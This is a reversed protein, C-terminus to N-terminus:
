RKKKILIALSIFFLLVLLANRTALLSVAMPQLNLIDEWYRFYLWTLSSTFIFIGSEIPTLFAVFPALWILYQPSLTSSTLIAGLLLLFILRM